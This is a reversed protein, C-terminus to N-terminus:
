LGLVLDEAVVRDLRIRNAFLSFALIGALGNARQVWRPLYRPPAIFGSEFYPELVFTDHLNMKGAFLARTLDLKNHKLCWRFFTHVSLLGHLYVTDKTFADGGGLPVGRFVRMASNFSDSDGQGADIFFQFVQLFDAGRLAMDIAIIRLSIRKMRTIDICGTVLEAFVALGEQTATTRPTSMGLSTLYKQERGNLSTLSHVFAEHQLLQARDYETFCTGSRLRIRTPGAAAKATLEPDIEVVVRDHIFFADIEHQLEDRMVEATLCYEAEAGALEPTLEDALSIFHRAADINHLDSGPLLDGPKGFLQISFGTLASTGVADLLAMELELSNATRVIYEALPDSGLARGAAAVAVFEARAAAYDPRPYEVVPLERHGQRWRELFAKQVRMPWSVAALLKIGRGAVVLRADLEAVKAELPSLARESM